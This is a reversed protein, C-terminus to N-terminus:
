FKYMQNIMASLLWCYIISASQPKNELQVNTTCLQWWNIHSDTLIAAAKDGAWSTQQHLFLKEILKFHHFILLFACREVLHSNKSMYNHYKLLWGNYFSHIYIDSEYNGVTKLFDRWHKFTFHVFTNTSVSSMVSISDEVTYLKSQHYQNLYEEETDERQEGTEAERQAGNSWCHPEGEYRHQSRRRGPWDAATGPRGPHGAGGAAVCRVWRFRQGSIVLLAPTNM